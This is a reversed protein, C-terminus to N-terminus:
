EWWKNGSEYDQYAETITLVENDLPLSENALVKSEAEDLAGAAQRMRTLFRRRRRVRLYLALAERALESRSKHALRAEEALKCELDESLRINLM